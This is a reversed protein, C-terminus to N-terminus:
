FNENTVYFKLIDNQLELIEEQIEPSKALVLVAISKVMQTIQIQSIFRNVCFCTMFELITFQEFRNEFQKSLKEFHIIFSSLNFNDEGNKGMDFYALSNENLKFIWFLMKDKFAKIFNITGTLRKNRRQLEINLYKLQKLIDTLFNFDM